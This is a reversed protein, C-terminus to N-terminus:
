DKKLEGFSNILLQTSILSLLYVIIPEDTKWISQLTLFLATAIVVILLVYLNISVMINM